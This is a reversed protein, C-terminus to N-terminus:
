VETQDWKLHNSSHFGTHIIKNQTTKTKIKNKQENKTKIQMNTVKTTKPKNNM